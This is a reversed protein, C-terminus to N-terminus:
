GGFINKTSEIRSFYSKTLKVKKQKNYQKPTNKWMWVVWALVMLVNSFILLKGTINM